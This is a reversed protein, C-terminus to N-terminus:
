RDRHARRKAVARKSVERKTTVTERLHKNLAAGVLNYTAALERKEAYDIDRVNRPDPHDIYLYGGCQTCVYLLMSGTMIEVQKTVPPADIGKWCEQECPMYVARFECDDNLKYEGDSFIAFPLVVAEMDGLTTVDIIAALLQTLHKSTYKGPKVFMARKM